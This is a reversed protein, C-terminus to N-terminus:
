SVIHFVQVYIVISFNNYMHAWFIIHMCQKKGCKVVSSVLTVIKLTNDM